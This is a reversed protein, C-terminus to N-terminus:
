CPPKQMDHRTQRRKQGTEKPSGLLTEGNASPLSPLAPPFDEPPLVSAHGQIFGYLRKSKARRWERKEALGGTLLCFRASSYIRKWPGQCKPNGLRVLLELECAIQRMYAKRIVLGRTSCVCILSLSILQPAVSWTPENSEQQQVRKSLQTIATPENARKQQAAASAVHAKTSSNKGRRKGKRSITKGEVLRSRPHLGWSFWLARHESRSVKCSAISANNVDKLSGVRTCVRFGM